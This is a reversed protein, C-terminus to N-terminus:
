PRSCPRIHRNFGRNHGILHGTIAFFLSTRNESGYGDTFVRYSESWLPPIPWFSGTKPRLNANKGTRGQIAPFGFRHRVACLRRRCLWGSIPLSRPSNFLWHRSRDRLGAQEAGKCLGGALLSYHQPHTASRTPNSSHVFDAASRQSTIITKHDIGRKIGGIVSKGVQAEVDSTVM